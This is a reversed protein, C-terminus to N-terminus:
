RLVRHVLARLGYAVAASAAIFAICFITAAQRDTM